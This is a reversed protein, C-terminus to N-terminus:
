KREDGNARQAKRIGVAYEGLKRHPDQNPRVITSRFDNWEAAGFGALGDIIAFRDAAPGYAEQPLPQVQLFPFNPDFEIPHHTRTLRVNIFLPGFWRNTEVIGEYCEYGRNRVFNAPARILAAWGPATRM